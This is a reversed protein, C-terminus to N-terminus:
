SEGRRKLIKEVENYMRWAQLSLARIVDEDGRDRLAQTLSWQADSLSACAEKLHDITEVM